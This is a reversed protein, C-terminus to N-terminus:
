LPRRPYPARQGWTSPAELRARLRNPSDEIITPEVGDDTRRTAVWLTGRRRIHWLDKHEDRLRELDSDVAEQKQETM